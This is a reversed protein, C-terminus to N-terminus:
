LSHVFEIIRRIGKAITDEEMTFALRVYDDCMEGYAKGPVVAVHVNELLRYAFEESKMGTKSIDIMM